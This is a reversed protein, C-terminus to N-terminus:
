FCPMCLNGQKKQSCLNLRTIALIYKIQTLSIRYRLLEFKYKIKIKLAKAQM